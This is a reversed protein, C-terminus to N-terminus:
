LGPKTRLDACGFILFGLDALRGGGLAGIRDCSLDHEIAVAGQPEGGPQDPLVGRVDGAAYAFREARGAVSSSSRRTVGSGCAESQPLRAGPV